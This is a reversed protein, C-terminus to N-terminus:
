EEESSSKVGEEDGEIDKVNDYVVGDISFVGM